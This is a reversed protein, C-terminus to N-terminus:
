HVINPKPVPIRVGPALEVYAPLERFEEEASFDELLWRKLDEFGRLRAFFRNDGQVAAWLADKTFGTNTVLLGLRFERNKLSVLRDVAERGTRRDVSHHKVQGALMFTGVGAQNPVAIFDVGGDRRATRGALSVSYGMREIREAVFHEFKEPSLTSMRAPDERLYQLLQPTIDPVIIVSPTIAEDDASHAREKKLKALLEEILFLPTTGSSLLIGGDQLHDLLHKSAYEAIERKAARGQGSRREAWSAM